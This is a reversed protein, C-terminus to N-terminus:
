ARKIGFQWHKETREQTGRPFASLPSEAGMAKWAGGFFNKGARDSEFTAQRNETQPRSDARMEAIPTRAAELEVVGVEPSREM